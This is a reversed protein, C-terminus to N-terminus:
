KSYKRASIMYVVIQILWMASVMLLPIMGIKFAMDALLALFMGVVYVYTSVKYVDYSAKYVAMKEAEDCSELWKKQFNIDLVNGRKEPNLQKELSVTKSQLLVTWILGFAMAIITTIFTYMIKTKYEPGMDFVSVGIIFATLNIVIMITSIAGTYFLKDEIKDILDDDEGDWKKSLAKAKGYIAFGIVAMVVNLVVSVYCINLKLFPGLDSVMSQLEAENKGIFGGAFLGIMYSVAIIILLRIVIVRIDEKSKERSAKIKEAAKAASNEYEGM